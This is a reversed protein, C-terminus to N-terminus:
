TTGVSDGDREGCQIQPSCAYIYPACQLVAGWMGGEMGNEGLRSGDINARPLPMVM